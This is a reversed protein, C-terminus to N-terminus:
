TCGVIVNDTPLRKVLENLPSTFHHFLFLLSSSWTGRSKKLDEIQKELSKIHNYSSLLLEEVSQRPHLGSEFRNYFSTWYKILPPSADVTIASEKLEDCGGLDNSRKAYFLPNIFKDRQSDMYAWLSYCNEHVRMETRDKECNGIFNGFQCSYVHDHLSILFKETFEFECPHQLQIQYVCDIFQTFVPAVEKADAQQLHGCRESFKHGFAIWDKEILAQFGDITRYYPDILLAALSCTQATRDWGDSCHVIVSIGDTIARAVFSAAELVSKLHKLWGSAAIAGTFADPSVHFLESAELLKALSSRMVHINEIGFFNFKINEYFSENEFGKGAAKNAYANVRPRTDVVYLIKSQINTRLIADLLSEDEECRQSFGSLPQSSRCICADNTYRYTLVPLRCKSRFSASSKLMFESASAPVLLNSPYTECLEYKVNLNSVCWHQNPVGQRKFERLLDFKRWTESRCNEFPENSAAYRFCYLADYSRVNSLYTLSSLVEGANNNDKPLMFTVVRFNKCKILLPTGQITSPLQEVSAIHSNLLWTENREEREVFILHTVTLYLTGNVGSTAQSQNVSQSSTTPSAIRWTIRNCM